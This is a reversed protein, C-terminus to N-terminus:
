MCNVEIDTKFRELNEITAADGAAREQLRQVVLLQLRKVFCIAGDLM